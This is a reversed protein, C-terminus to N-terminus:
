ADDGTRFAVEHEAGDLTAVAVYATDPELGTVTIGAAGVEGSAVPGSKVDAVQDRRTGARYVAVSAGQPFGRGATLRATAM